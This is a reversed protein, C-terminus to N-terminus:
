VLSMEVEEGHVPIRGIENIECIVDNIVRELQDRGSFVAKDATITIGMKGNYSLNIIAIPCSKQILGTIPSIREVPNGFLQFRNERFIAVNSHM